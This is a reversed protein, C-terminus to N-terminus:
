NWAFVIYRAVNQSRHSRHQCVLIRFTIWIKIPKRSIILCCYKRAILRIPAIITTLLVRVLHLTKRNCTGALKKMGVMRIYLWVTARLRIIRNIVRPEFRAIRHKTHIKTMASMQRMTRRHRLACLNVVKNVITRYSLRAINIVILELAQRVLLLRLNNQNTVRGKHLHWIKLAHGLNPALNRTTKQHCIHRM